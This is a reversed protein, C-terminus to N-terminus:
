HEGFIWKPLYQQLFLVLLLTLAVFIFYFSSIEIISWDPFKWNVIDRAIRLPIWHVAFFLMSKRGIYALINFRSLFKNTVIIMSICGLCATILWIFYNCSSINMRMDSGIGPKYIIQSCILTSIILIKGGGWAQQQGHM